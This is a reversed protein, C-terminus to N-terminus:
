GGRVQDIVTVLYNDVCPICLPGGCQRIEGIPCRGNDYAIERAIFLGASEGILDVIKAPHVRDDV